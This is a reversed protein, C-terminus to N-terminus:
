EGDHAGGPLGVILGYRAQAQRLATAGFAAMVEPVLDQGQEDMEVILYGMRGAHGLPTKFKGPVPIKFQGRDYTIIMEVGNATFPRTGTVEEAVRWRRCNFWEAQKRERAQKLADAPLKKPATM